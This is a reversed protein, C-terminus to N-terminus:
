IIAASVVFNFDEAIHDINGDLKDPNALAPSTSSLIPTMNKIIATIRAFGCYFSVPQRRRKKNADKKEEILQVVELLDNYEARESDSVQERDFGSQRIGFAQAHRDTKIESIKEVGPICRMAPFDNLIM